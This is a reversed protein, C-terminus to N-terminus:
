RRLSCQQSGGQFSLEWAIGELIEFLTFTTDCELMSTRDGFVVHRLRGLRIPMDLLANLRHFRLEGCLPPQGEHRSPDELPLVGRFTTFVNMIPEGPAGTLEVTKAFVLETFDPTVCGHQPCIAADQEAISIFPSLRKLEPYRAVLMFVSRLSFGKELQVRSSLCGLIDKPVVGSDYNGEATGTLLRGNSTLTAMEM